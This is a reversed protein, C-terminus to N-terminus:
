DFFNESVLEHLPKKARKRTIEIIGLKTMDVVNPGMPDKDLEVKLSDILIKKSENKYMNIFDILIIGSLNRLRIHRAAEGAAELNIQLYGDEADIDSVDSGSNVDIVTMAETYDIILYGGSKLYIKRSFAEHLNKKLSYVVNFPPNNVPDYYHLAKLDDEQYKELYNKIDDYVDKYNTEISTIENRRAEIIYNLYSKPARYLCTYMKSQNFGEKIATYRAHLSKIEKIIIDNEEQEAKTRVIFGCNDIYLEDYLIKLEEKKKSDRIKYSFHIGKHKTILIAYKGTIVPEKSLVPVKGKIADKVVQVMVKQDQLLVCPIFGNEGKKYEIFSAHINPLVNSVKGVYINDIINEFKSSDLSIDLLRNKDDLLCSIIYNNKKTIIIKSM